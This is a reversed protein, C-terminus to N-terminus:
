KKKTIETGYGIVSDCSKCDNENNGLIGTRSKQRYQSCVANFGEKNCKSQVSADNILTMWEARGVNTERYNGDAIVSYLSTATYNVLIWNTVDNRTM